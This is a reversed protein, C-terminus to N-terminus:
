LSVGDWVQNGNGVIWKYFPRVGALAWTLGKWFPSGVKEKACLINPRKTQYKYDVLSVWNKDGGAFYRRAWSALLSMNVERLNPVGVLGGYQKRQSVLGWNALHYKHIDGMNGWLFHAMQSTIAKIACKPFKIISM